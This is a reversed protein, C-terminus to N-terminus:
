GPGSRGVRCAQHLDLEGLTLRRERRPLEGAFCHTCGLNCASVVELHVALPAVLHDPPPDLDLAVAALREDLTFFGIEYFHEFFRAIRDRHAADATDDLVRGIPAELLSTLVTTAEADFPLYRSTRRDFVLSGFFQPILVLPPQPTM